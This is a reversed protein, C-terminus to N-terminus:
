LMSFSNQLYYIRAKALYRLISAYLTVLVRSLERAAQSQAHKLLAEVLTNRCITEAITATTELLENYTNMDGM